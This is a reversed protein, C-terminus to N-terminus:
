WRPPYKKLIDDSYLGKNDNYKVVDELWRIGARLRPVAFKSIDDNAVYFFIDHREGQLTAVEEIFKIRVGDFMEFISREFEAPDAGGLTTWPMICIQEFKSEEEM